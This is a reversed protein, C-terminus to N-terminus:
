VFRGGIEVRKQEKLGRAAFITRFGGQNFVIDEFFERTKETDFFNAFCLAFPMFDIIHQMSTESRQKVSLVLPMFTMFLYTKSPIIGFGKGMFDMHIYIYITFLFICLHLIPICHSAFTSFFLM